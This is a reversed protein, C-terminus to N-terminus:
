LKSQGFGHPWGLNQVCWSRDPSSQGQFHFALLKGHRLTLVATRMAHRTVQFAFLKLTESLPIVHKILIPNFDHVNSVNVPRVILINTQGRVVERWSGQSKVRNASESMSPKSAIFSDQTEKAHGHCKCFPPTASAIISKNWAPTSWPYNAQHGMLNRREENRFADSGIILDRRTSVTPLLLQLCGYVIVWESCCISSICESGIFANNYGVYTYMRSVYWINCFPRSNHVPQHEETWM